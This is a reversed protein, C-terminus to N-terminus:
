QEDIKTLAPLAELWSTVEAVKRHGFLEFIHLGEQGLRRAKENDNQAAAIRALGYSSLAVYEQLRGSALAIVEDFATTAPAFQQQQLNLEGWLYVTVTILWQSDVQRALELAEQVYGTHLNNYDEDNSM